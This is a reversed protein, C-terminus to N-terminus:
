LGYVSAGGYVEGSGLVCQLHFTGRLRLCRHPRAKRGRGYPDGCGVDSGGPLAMEGEIFHTAYTLFEGKKPNYARVASLFGSWGAQYLEEEMDEKRRQNTNLKKLHNWACKHVYKEFNQYLSEWAENNGNRAGTVLEKVEGTSLYEEM